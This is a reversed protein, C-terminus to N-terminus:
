RARARGSRVRRRPACSQCPYKSRRPRSGAGTARRGPAATRTTGSDKRSVRRRNAPLSSFTSTLSPHDAFVVHAFHRTIVAPLVFVQVARGLAQAVGLALALAARKEARDVAREVVEEPAVPGP